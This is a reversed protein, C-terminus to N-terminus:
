LGLASLDLRGGKVPPCWFYAGSLPRTFKFLADTTGDEAGLMRRLQAEFADLTSGFATFVLGCRPGETWPMSRRVVFAEPEFSEQATRKVHASAPADDIEENDSLRRGICHDRGAPSMANFRGLDHEWQQVAVFSSGALGKEASIAAQVAKKGKPNETGDEYGTIDRGSGHKFAEIVQAVGFAAALAADCERQRHFLEGADKGRLWLWLAAPTSPIDLGYGSFEPFPRLGEINRGLASVLSLGLGAVIHEGDALKALARLSAAPKAGPLLTYTVYRALPPVPQLIAAQAQPM